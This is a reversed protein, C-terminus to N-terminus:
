SGAHSVSLTERGHPQCHSAAAQLPLPIGQPLHPLLTGTCVLLIVGAICAVMRVHMCVKKFQCYHETCTFQHASLKGSSLADGVQARSCSGHAWGMGAGSWGGGVESHGRASAANVDPGGHGTARKGASRGHVWTAPSQTIHGRNTTGDHPIRAARM